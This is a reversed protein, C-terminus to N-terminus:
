CLPGETGKTPPWFLLLDTATEAWRVTLQIGSSSGSPLTGSTASALGPSAVKAATGRAFEPRRRTNLLAAMATTASVTILVAASPVMVVSPLM